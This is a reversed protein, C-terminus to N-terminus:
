FDLEPENHKKVEEGHWALSEMSNRISEVTEDVSSKGDYFKLLQAVTQTLSAQLSNIDRSTAKNGKPIEIVIKRASYAIYKTVLNIKCSNEFPRILIAPIRGNNLYKYLGWKNALGMDDAIQDISKNHMTRAYDVCGELAHQLSRAQFRNWAAQSKFPYSM